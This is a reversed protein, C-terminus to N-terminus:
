RTWKWLNWDMDYKGNIIRDLAANVSKIVYEVKEEPVCGSPLILHDEAKYEAEILKVREDRWIPQYPLYLGSSGLTKIGYDYLLMHDLQRKLGVGTVMVCQLYNSFNKIKKKSLLNDYMYELKNCYEASVRAYENKAEDFFELGTLALAASVEPMTIDLGRYVHSRRGLFGVSRGLLAFEYLEKNDTLLVGGEGGAVPKLSHLSIAFDEKTYISGLAQAADYIVPMGLNSLEDDDDDYSYGFLNTPLVIGDEDKPVKYVDIFYKDKSCDIPVVELGATKVANYICPFGLAQMYVRKKKLVEKYYGFALLMASNCQNTAIAYKKGAVKAVERELKKTFEGESLIESELIEDVYDRYREKRKESM